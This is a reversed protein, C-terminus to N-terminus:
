PLIPLLRPNRLVEAMLELGLDQLVTVAAMASAPRAQAAAQLANAADWASADDALAALQPLQQAVLAAAAAARPCDALSRARAVGEVHRRLTPPASAMLADTPRLAGGEGGLCASLQAVLTAQCDLPKGTFPCRPASLVDSIEELLARRGGEWGLPLGVAIDGAEPLEALPPQPGAGLDRPSAAAVPPRGLAEAETEASVAPVALAGPAAAEEWHAGGRSSPGGTGPSGKAAAARPGKSRGSSKGDAATAAEPEFKKLLTLLYAPWNKVNDREKQVTYTNIMALADRVKQRGGTAHLTSLFRRVRIDFDKAQLTLVKALLADIEVAVEDRPGGSPSSAEATSAAARGATGGAAAKVQWHLAGSPREERAGCGRGGSASEATEQWAELWSGDAEWQPTPEAAHRFRPAEVTPECRTWGKGGKGWSSRSWQGRASSRWPAADAGAGAAAAADGIYPGDFLQQVPPGWAAPPWVVCNFHPTPSTWTPRKFDWCIGWEDDDLWQPDLGTAM